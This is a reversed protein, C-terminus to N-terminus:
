NVSGINAKSIEDGISGRTIEFCGILIGMLTRDLMFIAVTLKMGFSNNCDSESLGKTKLVRDEHLMKYQSTSKSNIAELQLPKVIKMNSEKFPPEFIDTLTDIDGGALTDLGDDKWRSLVVTKFIVEYQM